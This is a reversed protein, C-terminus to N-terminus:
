VLDPLSRWNGLLPQVIARHMTIAHAGQWCRAKYTGKQMEQECLQFKNGLSEYMSLYQHDGEKLYGTVVQVGGCHRVTNVSLYTALPIPHVYSFADLM